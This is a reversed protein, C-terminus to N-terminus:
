AIVDIRHHYSIGGARIHAYVQFFTRHVILNNLTEACNWFNYFAMECCTVVCHEDFHVGVVIRM